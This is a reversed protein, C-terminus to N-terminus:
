LPLAVGLVLQRAGRADRVLDVLPEVGRLLSSSPASPAALGANFTEVASRLQRDASVGLPVAAVVLAGGVLALAWSKKEGSPRAVNSGLDWGILGGGVAGLILGAGVKASHGEMQKAAAPHARMAAAVHDQGLLQGGQRYASGLARDEIQIPRSTDPPPLSAACGALAALALAAARRSM